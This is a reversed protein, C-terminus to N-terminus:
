MNLLKQITAEVIAESNGGNRLEERIQEISMEQERLMFVANDFIYEPVRVNAVSTRGSPTNPSIGLRLTSGSVQPSGSMLLASLNEVSRNRSPAASQEPSTLPSMSEEGGSSASPTGPPENARSGFVKFGTDAYNRSELETTEDPLRLPAINTTKARPRRPKYPSDSVHPDEENEIDEEYDFEDAAAVAAAATAALLQDNWECQAKFAALNQFAIESRKDREVRGDKWIIVTSDHSASAFSFPSLPILMNVQDSHAWMEGILMPQYVFRRQAGGPRNSTHADKPVDPSSRSLSMKSGASSSSRGSDKTSKQPSAFAGTAHM